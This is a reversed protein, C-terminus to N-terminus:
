SAGTYGPAVWRDCGVHVHKVAARLLPKENPPLSSDDRDFSPATKFRM